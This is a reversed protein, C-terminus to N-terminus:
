PAVELEQTVENIVELGHFGISRMPPRDELFNYVLGPLGDKVRSM